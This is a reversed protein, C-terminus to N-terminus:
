GAKASGDKVCSIYCRHHLSTLFRGQKGCAGHPLAARRGTTHAVCAPARIGGTGLPPAARDSATPRSSVSRLSARVAPPRRCSAARSPGSAAPSGAGCPVAVSPFAVPSLPGPYSTRAMGGSTTARSRARSSAPRWGSGVTSASPPLGSRQRMDRLRGPSSTASTEYAGSRRQARSVPASGPGYSSTPGTKTWGCPQAPQAATGSPPWGSATRPSRRTSRAWEAAPFMRPPSSSSPGPPASRRPPPRVPQVRVALHRGHM